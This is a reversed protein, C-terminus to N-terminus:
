TPLVQTYSGLTVAKPKRATLSKAKIELERAKKKDGEDRAKRARQLLKKKKYQVALRKQKKRKKETTAEKQAKRVAEVDTIPLTGKLKPHEEGRHYVSGDAAVFEKMFRWGRPKNSRVVLPKHKPFPMKSQVHTACTVGKFEAPVLETNFCGDEKCEMLVSKQKAMVEKWTTVKRTYKRKKTKAM